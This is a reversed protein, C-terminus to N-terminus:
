ERNVFVELLQRDTQQVVPQAQVVVFVSLLELHLGSV